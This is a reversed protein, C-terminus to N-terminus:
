VSRSHSQPQTQTQLCCLQPYALHRLVSKLLTVLKTFFVGSPKNWPGDPIPAKRTPLGTTMGNKNYNLLPFHTTFGEGSRTRIPM